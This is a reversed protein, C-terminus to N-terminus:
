MLVGGAGGFGTLCSPSNYISLEGESCGPVSVDKERDRGEM